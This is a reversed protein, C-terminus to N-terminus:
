RCVVFVTRTELVARKRGESGNGPAGHFAHGPIHLDDQMLRVRRSLDILTIHVLQPFGSASGDM